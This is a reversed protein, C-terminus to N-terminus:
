WPMDFRDFLRPRKKRDTFRRTNPSTPLRRQMRTARTKPSNKLQTDHILHPRFRRALNLVSFYSPASLRIDRYWPFPLSPIALVQIQGTRAHETFVDTEEAPYSPAVVACEWGRTVLGAASLATVVSVGNVQPPYTDTCFLVRMPFTMSANRM